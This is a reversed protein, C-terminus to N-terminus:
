KKPSGFKLEVNNEQKGNVVVKRSKVNLDTLETCSGDTAKKYAFIESNAACGGITQGCLNFYFTEDGKKVSYDTAQSQIQRLDYLSLNDYILCSISVDNKTAQAAQTGILVSASGLVTYLATYKGM